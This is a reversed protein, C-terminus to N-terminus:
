ILYYYIYEINYHCNNLIGFDSGCCSAEMTFCLSICFETAIAIRGTGERSKQVQFSYIFLLYYISALNFQFIIRQM